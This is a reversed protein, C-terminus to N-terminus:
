EESEALTKAALKQRMSGGEVDFRYANHILRDLIADAQIPDPYLDHWEAVPLQGSIITSVTDYRREFLEFLEASEEVSFKRSGWDDLILLPVQCIKKFESNYRGDMRSEELNLFLDPVRFYRVAINQFCAARGLACALYTKGVGTPGSLLINQKHRLYSGDALRQVITKTVGKKESYDIDEVSAAFRFGATIVLRKM